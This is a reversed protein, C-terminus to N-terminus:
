LRPGEQQKEGLKRHRAAIALNAGALCAFIVGLTRNGGGLELSAALFLLVAALINIGYSKKKM